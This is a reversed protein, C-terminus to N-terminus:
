TPPTDKKPRLSQYLHQVSSGGGGAIQAIRIAMRRHSICRVCVPDLARTKFGGDYGTDGCFLTTIRVYAQGTRVGGRNSPRECRRVGRFGEACVVSGEDGDIESTFM